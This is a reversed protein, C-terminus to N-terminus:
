GENANAKVTLWFIDPHSSAVLHGGVPLTIVEVHHAASKLWAPLGAILPDEPGQIVVIGGTTGPFGEPNTSVSAAVDEAIGVISSRYASAFCEFMRTQDASEKLVRIDSPSRDFLRILVKRVTAPDTFYRRFQWAVYRYLGPTHMLSRLGRLFTAMQGTGTTEAPFHPSLLLIRSVLDPRRQCFALAWETGLSHGAVPMPRDFSKEIFAALDDFDADRNRRSHLATTPEDDLYGARIPMLIRLGAAECAPGSKMLLLPYLVGHVVILPEGDPRGCEFLRLTRGTPLRHVILRVDPSLYDRTFREITGDDLGAMGVVAFLHSLRAMLTRALDAQSRCRLKACVGKVQTRKTEFAVADESAAERLTAGRLLQMLLRSEAPTLTVDPDHLALVEVLLDPSICLGMMHSTKGRSSPLALVPSFWNCNQGGDDPILQGPRAGAAAGQALAAIQSEEVPHVVLRTSLDSMRTAGGRLYEGTKDFEAWRIIGPQDRDASLYRVLVEPGAGRARSESLVSFIADVDVGAPRAVARRSTM